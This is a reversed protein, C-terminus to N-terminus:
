ERTAVLGGTTTSALMDGSGTAVDSEGPWAIAPLPPNVSETM